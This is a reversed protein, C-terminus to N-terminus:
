TDLFKTIHLGILLPLPWLLYLHAKLSLYRTRRIWNIPLWRKLGYLGGLLSGTLLLGTFNLMLWLSLGQGMHLGTHLMLIITTMFGFTIHFARWQEFNGLNRKSIRKYQSLGILFLGFAVLCYGTVQELVYWRSIREWPLLEQIFQKTPWEEPLMLSLTLLLIVFSIGAFTRWNTESESRICDILNFLLPKCAGCVSGAGTAATLEEFSDAGKDFETHMRSLTIGTCNCLTASSPWSLLDVTGEDRWIRGNNHFRWLQWPMLRRHNYIIDRLRPIESWEGVAVVGVLRDCKINLKRYVGQSQDYFIPDDGQWHSEHVDGMSFIPYGAVKLSTVSISGTYSAPRDAIVRAVVYAQEYGPAVQGSIVGRHEICEGVAYILPDSTQLRDNVLIGRGIALGAECALEINPQVGAALIITDCKFTAGSRLEIGQVTLGGLIQRIGENTHVRIGLSEIHRQLIESGRADLQEFLLHASHEIVTVRTNFRRMAKSAELGLLGGGIVVTHRSRTMSAYLRHTDTMDRFTYVGALGIGPIRPVKPNSGTALILHRYEYRNGYRTTITRSERDIGIVYENFHTIVHSKDSLSVNQILEAQDIETALFSNSKIRKQPAWPEGSFLHIHCDPLHRCLELVVRVGVPGAGIVIVPLSDSEPYLAIENSPEPLM